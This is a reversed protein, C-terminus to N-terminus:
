KSGENAAYVANVYLLAHELQRNVIGGYGDSLLPYKAFVDKPEPLTDDEPLAPLFRARAEYRQRLDGMTWMKAATLITSLEPDDVKDAPLSMIGGNPIYRFKSAMAIAFKSDTGLRAYWGLAGKTLYESALRAHPFLRLFKALRTDTLSVVIAKDGLLEKAGTPYTDNVYYLNRGSQPLEDAPFKERYQGNALTTPYTGAFKAKGGGTGYAKNPDKWAKVDAWDVTTLTGDIWDPKPVAASDTIYVTKKHPEDTLEHHELYRNLKRRQTASWKTNSYNLVWPRTAADDLNIQGAPYRHSVGGSYGNVIKSAWLAAAYEVNGPKKVPDLDEASLVTPIVEGNWELDDVNGRGFAARAEILAKAAAPKTPAEIISAAVVENVQATFDALARDLEERTKPSDQLSERSPTFHVSGIPVRVVLRKDEPLTELAENEYDPPPPYAVNGMVVTLPWNCCRTGINWGREAVLYTDGIAYGDLQAPEAGNLLAKGPAWYSFFDKAKREVNYEDDTPICIEVGDPEDTEGSDLVTMTGAGTEDRAISVQMRQGDKTGTLTFQDVYALAAKCGIGLMGVADNSGRKTSAGYQSYITRIDEADMGVGYDRITLLPRLATPTSIEIPRTQGAQIHSDLANTSYERICALIRDEYLDTFMNMFHQAADAAITMAIDEGRVTSDVTIGTREPIM